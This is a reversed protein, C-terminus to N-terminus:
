EESDHIKKHRGHRGHGGHGGHRHHRGEMRRLKTRVREMQEPTLFEELSMELLSTNEKLEALHHSHMSDLREGFAQLIPQIAREQEPTPAAAEKIKRQFGEGGRMDMFEHVRGHILHGTILGGLLMGIVLTGLIVLISKTKANKM